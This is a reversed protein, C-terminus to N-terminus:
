SLVRLLFDPSCHPQFTFFFFVSILCKGSASLIRKLLFLFDLVFFYLINGEFFFFLVSFYDVIARMESEGRKRRSETGHM